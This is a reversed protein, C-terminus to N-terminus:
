KLHLPLLPNELPMRQSLIALPKRKVTLNIAENFHNTAEFPAM